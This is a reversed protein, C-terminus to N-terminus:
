VVNILHIQVSGLLISWQIEMQGCMILVVVAPNIMCGLGFNVLPIDGWPMRNMQPYFLPSHTDLMAVISLPLQNHYVMQIQRHRLAIHFISMGLGFLIVIWVM